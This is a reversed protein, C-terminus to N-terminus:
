ESLTVKGTLEPKASSSGVIIEFDGPTAKWGKSTVDYYSFARSDLLVTVTRTEGPKLATKSFGKLEKVPREIKSHKDSVYVQAVESGARKGANTVDFSVTVPANTTAPTVKLNSYKFTTYSLGYGFPFLPKTESKDFHRYGLFVGETYAVRKNNDKDYYSSFTPNNKWEREFSFPLRGSPNVKGFLIEAAATSGGQGPYWAYLLASTKDLWGNTDVSGGANLVTVVKKNADMVSRILSLQEDPLEFPRDAGEGEKMSDFGIALIVLDAKSALEKAKALERSSGSSIGFGIKAQGTGEFYEIRIKYTKGAELNLSRSVLTEGQYQWQEVVLKDDVFLRFGDDGSIYFQHSGTQTPKFYGIWRASFEDTKGGEVYSGEGWNFSLHQDNRTLVPEGKMETNNFYQGVFGQTNGDATTTVKTEDFIESVLQVGPSYTIKTSPGAVAKVADLLTVASFPEVLSSGGAGTVARGANPGLVAINKYKATQLPLIGNNKLLVMSGRAGDLAIQRAEPNDLPLSKDTQERGFFGFELATRLIRRVKDDITAESLKGSQIAPLLTSRNMFKGNPMEIDMGGNAAAVGDYTADWDSMIIGRFGWEKKAIETNLYVNQTAHVGNILNYSDMIAGVKAEKVSAEFAPLYIERMAREDIDSSVRHRDWEQNNGMFHKATAIVGQSQIGKIDAVAIRSALFPDEGFYEFNRGCMPARYINMGPALLFHVGRARADKGMSTGIRKVLDTDWSAAMAIGAPYATSRGYNRVGVPGDAMKMEPVGLRPIARIYFDNYGGIYDIKEELTMKSLIQEVRADIDATQANLALSFCVLFLAVLSRLVKNM